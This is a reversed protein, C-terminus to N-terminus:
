GMNIAKAIAAAKSGANFEMTLQGYLIQLLMGHAQASLESMPVTKKVAGRFVVQGQQVDAIAKAGTGKVKGVLEAMDACAPAGEHPRRGREGSARPSPRRTRRRGKMSM